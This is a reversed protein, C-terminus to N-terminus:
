WNSNDITRIGWDAINEESRVYRCDVQVTAKILSLMITLLLTNNCGKMFRMSGYRIAYMVPLNDTYVILKKAFNKRNLHHMVGLLVAYLERHIINRYLSNM